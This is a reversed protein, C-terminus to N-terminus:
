RAAEIVALDNENGRDHLYFFDVATTIGARAMEAFDLLAAAKIADRDLRESYPHLVLDRWSVFGLDDGIGRLLSHFSHGHANVTGPLVAVRGWDERGHEPFRVALDAPKGTALIRPGDLVFGHGEFWRDEAFVLDASVVTM